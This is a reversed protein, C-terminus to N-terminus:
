IPSVLKILLKPIQDLELFMYIGEFTHTPQEETYFEM